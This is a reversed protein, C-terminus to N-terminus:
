WQIRVSYTSVTEASRWEAVFAFINVPINVNRLNCKLKFNDIAYDYQWNVNITEPANVDSKDQYIIFFKLFVM